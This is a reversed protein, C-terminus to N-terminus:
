AQTLELSILDTRTRAGTKAFILHLQNKVTQATIGRAAAIQKNTLGRKVLGVIHGESHTLHAGAAEKKPAVQMSRKM